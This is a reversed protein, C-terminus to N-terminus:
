TFSKSQIPKMRRMGLSKRQVSGPQVPREIHDQKTPSSSLLIFKPEPSSSRKSKKVPQAKQIWQVLSEQVINAKRKGTTRSSRFGVHAVQIKEQERPFKDILRNSNGYFEKSNDPPVIEEPLLKDEFFDRSLTLM